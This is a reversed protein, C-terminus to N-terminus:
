EYDISKSNWMEWFCLSFGSVYCTGRREAETCIMTEDVTASVNLPRYGAACEQNTILRVRASRLEQSSVGEDKNGWGSIIGVTGAPYLRSALGIPRIRAGYPVNRFLFLISFDNNVGRRGYKPDTVIRFVRIRMGLPDSYPPPANLFFAPFQNYRAYYGAHMFKIFTYVM